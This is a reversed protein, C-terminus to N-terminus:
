TFLFHLIKKEPANINSLFEVEDWGYTWSPDYHIYNHYDLIDNLEHTLHSKGNGGPGYLIIIPADNNIYNM